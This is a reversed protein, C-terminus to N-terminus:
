RTGEQTEAGATAAGAEENVPATLPMTLRVETGEGPASRLRVTGGHRRMRTRISDALGHRDPAVADPDFGSGRDRVFM